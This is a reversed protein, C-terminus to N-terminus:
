YYFTFQINRSDGIERRMDSPWKEYPAPDTVALQCVYALTEGVTSQAIQMDTIRGDYTLRFQLVVKGTRDLAFQRSDLLDFWRQEVAEIFARDYDGTLTAKADLSSIELHHRVGGDQKMKQGPMFNNQQQRMKAEVLTRPRTQEATGKDPRLETAPKAMALDGVPPKAKAEEPPQEQKPAQQEPKPPAPSPRLPTFKKPAEETKAMREQEGTIKPTDTDERADPNAAKSNQSSYYKANKPPEPTAAAPNVEVFMLPAEAPQPPPAPKRPELQHALAQLFKIRELWVPLVRRTFEYGGYGIAHVLLSILLAWALRKYEFRSPRLSMEQQGPVPM